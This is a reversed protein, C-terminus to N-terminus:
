TDIPLRRKRQTVTGSEALSRSILEPDPYDGLSNLPNRLSAYRSVLHLTQGIHMSFDPFM